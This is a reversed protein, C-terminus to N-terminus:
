QSVFLLPLKSAPSWGNDVSALRPPMAGPAVSRTNTCTNAGAPAGSPVSLVVSTVAVV